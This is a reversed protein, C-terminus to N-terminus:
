DFRIYGRGNKLQIKTGLDESLVSIEILFEEAEQYNLERLVHENNQFKGIIPIIEAMILKNDEFYLMVTLNHNLFQNKSGFLFNGLSYIILGNKYKEIGQPIHPHHGMIVKFGSDILEHAQKVQVKTPVPSYEVGWHIALLNVFESNKDAIKKLKPLNLSAIGAKGETAFLRAEGIESVSMVSFSSDSFEFQFPTFAESINKGIGVFYFQENNLNKITDDFGKIGYDMSHNNALFLLDVKIKKLLSLDEPKANFVYSKNQDITEVTDSVPTELNVMRFDAESFLRELGEVVKYEGLRKRSETFGWNFMVDGGVLIKTFRKRHIINSEITLLIIFIWFFRM